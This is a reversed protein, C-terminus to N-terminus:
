INVLVLSVIALIFGLWNYLNLNEKFVILGVLFGAVVGIMSYFIMIKSLLEYKMSFIWLFNAISFLVFGVIFYSVKSNVAWSKAIYDGIIDILAVTSILSIFILKNPM